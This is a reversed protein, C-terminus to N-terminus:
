IMCYIVFVISDALKEDVLTLNGIKGFAEPLRALSAQIAAEKALRNPLSPILMTPFVHVLISVAQLCPTGRTQMLDDLITGFLRLALNATEVALM